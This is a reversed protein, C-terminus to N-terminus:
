LSGKDAAQQLDTSVAARRVADAAHIPEEPLFFDVMQRLLFATGLFAMAFVFLRIPNMNSGRDSNTPTLCDARPKNFAHKM